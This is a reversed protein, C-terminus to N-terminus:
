VKKIIVKDNKNEVTWNDNFVEKIYRSYLMLRINKKREMEKKSQEGTYEFCNVNPHEKRYIKVIESITKMVKFVEGKNTIAYEEGDYEENKVGFVITAHLINKERRGFRVEYIVGSTTTFTYTSGSKITPCCIKYAEIKNM